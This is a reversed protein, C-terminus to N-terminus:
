KGYFEYDAIGTIGRIGVHLNGFGRRGGGDVAMVKVVVV